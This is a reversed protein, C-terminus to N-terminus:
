MNKTKFHVPFTFKEKSKPFTGALHCERLVLNYCNKTWYINETCKRHNKLGPFKVKRGTNPESCLM